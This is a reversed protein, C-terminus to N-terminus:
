LSSLSPPFFFIVKGMICQGLYVAWDGGHRKFNSFYDPTRAFKMALKNM